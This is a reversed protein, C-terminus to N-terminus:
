LEADLQQNHSTFHANICVDHEATLLTPADYANLIHLCNTLVLTELVLSICGKQLIHDYKKM